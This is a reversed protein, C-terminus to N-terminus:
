ASAGDYARQLRILLMSFLGGAVTGIVLTIARDLVVLAFLPAPAVGLSLGAVVMAAEVGGLGGPTPAQSGIAAALSLACLTGLPLHLGVALAVFYVRLLDLAWGGIAAPLARVTGRLAQKRDFEFRARGLAVILVAAIVVPIAALLLSKSRQVGGVFAIVVLGFLAVGDALRDIALAALVRRMVAEEGHAFRRLWAARAVEGAAAGFSIHSAFVGAMGISASALRSLRPLLRHAASHLREGIVFVGVFYAVLALGLPWWTASRLALSTNAALTSWDGM